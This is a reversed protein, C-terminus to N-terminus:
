RADRSKRIASVGDWGQHVPHSERIKDQQEIASRIRDRNRLRAGLLYRVRKEVVTLKGYDEVIKDM